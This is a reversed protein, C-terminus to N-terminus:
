SLIRFSLGREKAMAQEIEKAVSPDDASLGRKAYTHIKDKLFSKMYTEVKEQSDYVYVNDAFPKGFSPPRMKGMGFGLAFVLVFATATLLKKSYRIM